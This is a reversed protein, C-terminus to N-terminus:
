SAVLRKGEEALPLTVHFTSGQGEESEVWMQGGHRKVIEYSIHLGLGLGPHAKDKSEAVQYFQEFIRPQHEKAIGIGFDQVGIHVQNEEKMVRILVTDAQPSYKVANNLLNTLVQGIRDQDGFLETQICEEIQIHHTQTTEQVNEVIEQVLADIAFPEERYVLKGTQMRSLDLLDNILKTLKDIQADMRAVYHLEKEDKRASLHRRLLGLFGKLSTVPTKLEHSAMSIFADKRKDLEKRASIDLVFGICTDTREIRTVAVLVPIRRGNKHLYEVEYSGSAGKEQMATLAEQSLPHFEPPTIADRQMARAQLEARTYGLLDLFADNAELFTGAFDSVFVGILNSDFLQRFKAELQKQGTIDRTIDSAGIIAGSNDKIPSVTVAATLPTGDKHVRTTEYHEVREGRYIREMIRKFEDQHDPLFLLTVSQGIIEQASYGFVREAAVNWSTIIGDLDKSFIADDSSEVIAALYHQAEQALKRDTIDHLNCQIAEHGNAQYLTGVFEVFRTQGNKSHLPLEEYRIVHCEQLERLVKLSAEQDQFLGVSWFPEGVLLERTYGLLDLLFPNADTITGTLPDIMLIGDKSTEFLRRYSNESFRLLKEAEKREAIEAQLSNAKQQLLTVARLRDDPNTLLTYSEDPVVHSHQKCIEAFLDEYEDRAFYSTAYACFLLFSPAMTHLENWFVELNVAAKREGRAWLLAVMEGFVRVHRGNKAAREILGGIVESFRQPDPEGDVMFQALTEDADLALYDGQLSAFVLDLGKKKLREELGERHERTAVVICGEGTTLGVEIFGSLSDLLFADTEYFQVFHDSPNSVDQQLRIKSESSIDEPEPSMYRENSLITM